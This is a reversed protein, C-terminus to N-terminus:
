KYWTSRWAKLIFLTWLIKVYNRYSPMIRAICLSRLPDRLLYIRGQSINEWLYNIYRERHLLKSEGANARVFYRSAECYDTEFNRGLLGRDIGWFADRVSFRRLRPPLWDQNFNWFTRGPIVSAAHENLADARRKVTLPQAGRSDSISIKVCQAHITACRLLSAQLMSISEWVRLQAAVQVRKCKCATNIRFFYEVTHPINM